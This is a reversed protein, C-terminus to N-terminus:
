DHPVLNTPEARNLPMTICNVTYAAGAARAIEVRDDAQSADEYIGFIQAGSRDSYMGYVVYVRREDPDVDILTM